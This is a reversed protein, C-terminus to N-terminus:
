VDLRRALESWIEPGGRHWNAGWNCRAFCAAAAAEDGAVQAFLGALLEDASRPPRDLSLRAEPWRGQAALWLARARLDGREAAVSRDLLRRVGRRLDEPTLPKALFDWVGLALAERAVAGDAHASAFLVPPRREFPLTARERLFGLGDLEPLAYDLVIADFTEGAVIRRLAAAASAEGEPRWGDHRLAFTCVRRVSADDDVILIRPAAVAAAAPRGAQEVPPRDAEPAPQGAAAGAPEPKSTPDTPRSSDHALSALPWRWRRFTPQLRLAKM